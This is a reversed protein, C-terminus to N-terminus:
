HRRDDFVVRTPKCSLVAKRYGGVESRDLSAPLLFCIPVDVLLDPCGCFCIPFCISLLLDPCGCLEPRCSLGFCIPLCDPVDTVDM